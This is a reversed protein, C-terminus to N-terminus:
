GLKTILAMRKAAVGVLISGSGVRGKGDKGGVTSYGVWIFEAWSLDVVVAWHDGLSYM